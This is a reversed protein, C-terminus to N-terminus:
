KDIKSREVEDISKGEENKWETWGNASRGLVFGAATSVSSFTLNQVVEYFIDKDALTTDSIKELRLAKLTNPISPTENKSVQSGKLVLVGESSYTATASLGKSSIYYYSNTIVTEHFTYGLSSLVLKMNQKFEHMESEQEESLKSGEPLNANHLTAKNATKCDLVFLAELFRINAKSLNEDKASFVICTNWFDKSQHASIRRKFNEAEGVYVEPTVSTGGVLFYVCQKQLEERQNVIELKNRPIIFAMGSWNSLQVKKTGTPDGGLLFLTITKSILANM